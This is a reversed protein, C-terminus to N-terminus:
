VRLLGLWGRAPAAHATCLVPLNLYCAKLRAPCCEHGRLALLDIEHVLAALLLWLVGEARILEIM